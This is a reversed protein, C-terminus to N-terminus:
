HDGYTPTERSIYDNYINISGRDSIRQSIQSVGQASPQMFSTQDDDAPESRAYHPPPSIVMSHSRGALTEKQRDFYDLEEAIKALQNM